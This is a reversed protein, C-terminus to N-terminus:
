IRGRLVMEEIQRQSRGQQNAQAVAPNRPQQSQDNTPTTHNNYYSMISSHTTTTTPSAISFTCYTTGFPKLLKGYTSALMEKEVLQRQALITKPTHLDLDKLRTIISNSPYGILSRGFRHVEVDLAEFIDRMVPGYDKRWNIYKVVPGRDITAVDLNNVALYNIDSHHPSYEIFYNEDIQEKWPRQNFIYWQVDLKLEELQKKTKM